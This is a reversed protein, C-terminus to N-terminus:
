VICKNEWEPKGNEAAPSILSGNPYIIYLIFFLDLMLFVCWCPM